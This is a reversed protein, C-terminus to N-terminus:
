HGLGLDPHRRLRHDAMWLGFLADPSSGHRSRDPWEAHLPSGAYGADSLRNFITQRRQGCPQAHQHCGHGTRSIAANRMADNLQLAGVGAQSRADNILSLLAAEASVLANRPGFCGAAPCIGAAPRRSALPPILNRLSM